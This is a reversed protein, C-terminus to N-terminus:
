RGTDPVDPTGKTLENIADVGARDLVEDLELNRDVPPAARGSKGELRDALMERVKQSGIKNMLAEDWIMRALKELNTMKTDGNQYYDAAQELAIVKLWDTLRREIDRDAPADFVKEKVPTAGRESHDHDVPGFVGRKGNRDAESERASQLVAAGESESPQVPRM